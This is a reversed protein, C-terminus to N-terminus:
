SALGVSDYMRSLALSSGRQAQEACDAIQNLEDLNSVNVAKQPSGASSAPKTQQETETARSHCPGNEGLLMIFRQRLTEKIRPNGCITDRVAGPTSRANIDTVVASASEMRRTPFEGDDEVNEEGAEVRTKKSVDAGTSTTSSPPAHFSATVLSKIISAKPYYFTSIVPTKKLACSSGSKAVSVFSTSRERKPASDLRCMSSPSHVLRSLQYSKEVERRELDKHIPVENDNFEEAITCDEADIPATVSSLDKRVTAAPRRSIHLNAPVPRARRYSRLRVVRLGTTVGCGLMQSDAASASRQRICNIGPMEVVRKPDIFRPQQQKGTEAKTRPRVM